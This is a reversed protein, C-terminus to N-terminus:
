EEGQLSFIDLLLLKSFPPNPGYNSSITWWPQSVCWCPHASSYHSEPSMDRENPEPGWDMSHCQGCWPPYEGRLLVKPFTKMAVSLPTSFDALNVTFIVSWLCHPLARWVLLHSQTTNTITWFLHSDKPSHDNLFTHKIKLCTPSSISKKLIDFLCKM